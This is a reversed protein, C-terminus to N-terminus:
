GCSSCSGERNGGKGKGGQDGLLGHKNQFDADTDGPSHPHNGASKKQRQLPKEYRESRSGYLDNHIVCRILGGGPRRHRLTTQSSTKGETKGGPRPQAQYLSSCALFLIIPIELEGNSEKKNEAGHGGFVKVREPKIFCTPETLHTDKYLM